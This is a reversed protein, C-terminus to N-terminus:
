IYVKCNAQLLVVQYVDPM